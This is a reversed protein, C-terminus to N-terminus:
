PHLDRLTPWVARLVLVQAHREGVIHAVRDLAADIVVELQPSADKELWTGARPTRTCQSSTGGSTRATSSSLSPPRTTSAVVCGVPNEGPSAARRSRSWPRRTKRLATSSSALGSVGPM